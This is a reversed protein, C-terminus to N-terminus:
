KRNLIAQKEEATLNRLLQATQRRVINQKEKQAAYREAASGYTHEERVPNPDDCVRYSTTLPLGQRLIGGSSTCTEQAKQVMCLCQYASLVVQFRIRGEVIQDHSIGLKELQELIDADDGMTVVPRGERQLKSKAPM